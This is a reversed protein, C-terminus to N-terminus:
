THRGFVTRFAKPNAGTTVEMPQENPNRASTIHPLGMGAGEWRRQAARAARAARATRGRGVPGVGVTRGPKGPTGLGGMMGIEVSRGFSNPIDPLRLRALAFALAFASAIAIPLARPPLGQSLHM